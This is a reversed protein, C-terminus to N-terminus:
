RATTPGHGPSAAVVRYATAPFGALDAVSWEATAPTGAGGVRTFRALEGGNEFYGRAAYSTAAGPDLDGFM